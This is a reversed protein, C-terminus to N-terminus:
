PLPSSRLSAHLSELLTELAAPVQNQFLWAAAGLTFAISMLSLVANLSFGIAMVNMQPLTRGIIAVVVTGLLLAVLAPAAARIGLVFSQTVMVVLAQAVGGPIGATGPPISQFTDLLGAMVLRHGGITVFVALSVQTLFQSLMPVDEGFSPDYIESMTEGSNRGIIQGALQAGSFLIDIGLGLCLGILLEGGVLVLYNLTTGPPPVVHALQSPLILVTLTFALLVRVQTPIQQKGYIPATIVLGSMRTFILTFLVLKDIALQGLWSM